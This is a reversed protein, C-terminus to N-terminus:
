ARSSSPFLNMSNKSSTALNAQSIFCKQVAMRVAAEAAAISQRFREDHYQEYGVRICTLDTQGIFALLTALHPELFNLHAM